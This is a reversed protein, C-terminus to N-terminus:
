IGARVWKSGHSKEIESSKKIGRLFYDLVISRRHLKEQITADVVKRSKQVLARKKFTKPLQLLVAFFAAIVARVRVFDLKLLSFLVALVELLLRIPLVWLLSVASYNKILMLVSNRHNLFMKLFSDPRLTSGSNHFVVSAPESVVRYGALHFRWCLDIEEMHAFFDEDFAGVAELASRRVMVATGSAWFINRSIDYQNEDKELSFFIRGLAFPFGFVDMMGGAAGSYDFMNPQTQALLKPQVAAILADQQMQTVLPTLWGPAFTTDNNLFLVFEGSGAAYGANCGGAYGSNKTKNVLLVWPFDGALSDVSGDTSANNVVIVERNSYDTKSLSALCDYLIEKGNYHPIVISVMSQRTM